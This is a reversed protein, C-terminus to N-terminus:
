ASLGKFVGGDQDVMGADLGAVAGIARAAVDVAAFSRHAVSGAGEVDLVEARVQQELQEHHTVAVSRSEDM